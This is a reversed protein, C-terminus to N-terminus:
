VALSKKQVEAIVIITHDFLVLTTSFRLQSSVLCFSESSLWRYIGRNTLLVLKYSMYTPKEVQLTCEKISWRFETICGNCVFGNHWWMLKSARVHYCHCGKAILFNVVMKIRQMGESWGTRIDARESACLWKEKTRVDRATWFVLEWLLLMCGFVTSLM